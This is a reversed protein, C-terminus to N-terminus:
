REYCRREPLCGETEAPKNDPGLCNQTRACWFIGSGHEDGPPTATEYFMEKSQLHKCPRNNLRNWSDTSLARSSM